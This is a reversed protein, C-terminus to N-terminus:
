GQAVWEPAMRLEATMRSVIDLMVVFEVGRLSVIFTSFSEIRM